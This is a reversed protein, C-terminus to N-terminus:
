ASNWPSRNESRSQPVKQVVANEPDLYRQSCKATRVMPLVTSSSTRVVSSAKVLASRQISSFENLSSGELVSATSRITPLLGLGILKRSPFVMMLGWRSSLYKPITSSWLIFKELWTRCAVALASFNVAISALNIGLRPPGLEVLRFSSAATVVDTM